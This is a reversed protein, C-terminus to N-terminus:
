IFDADRAATSSALGSEADCVTGCDPGKTLGCSLSWVHGFPPREPIVGPVLTRRNEIQVVVEDDGQEVVQEPDLGTAAAGARAGESM